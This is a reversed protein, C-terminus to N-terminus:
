KILSAPSSPPQEGRLHVCDRNLNCVSIMASRSLRSETRIDELFSAQALQIDQILYTLSTEYDKLKQSAQAAILSNEPIENLNSIAQQWLAKIEKKQSLTDPSIPNNKTAEEGLRLAQEWNDNARQEILIQVEVDRLKQFLEDDPNLEPNESLLSEWFGPEPSEQIPAELEEIIQERLQILEELSRAGYVENPSGFMPLMQTLGVGVAIAFSSTVTTAWRLLRSM